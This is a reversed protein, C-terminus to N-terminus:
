VSAQLKLPPIELIPTFLEQQVAVVVKESPIAFWQLNRQADYMHLGSDNLHLSSDETLSIDSEDKMVTWALTKPPINEFWIGLRQTVMKGTSPFNLFRGTTNGNGKPKPHTPQFDTDGTVTSKKRQTKMARNVGSYSRGCQAHPCNITIYSSADTDSSVDTACLNGHNTLLGGDTV